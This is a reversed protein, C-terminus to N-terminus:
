WVGPVLRFRVRRAYDAYGPLERRLTADELATRVVFWITLLPGVALAPWSLLMLPAGLSGILFGSYGPHRVVRYPGREVVAHGVDHQIRVTSEFHPNAAMARAFLIGGVTNAVVGIAAFPLPITPWGLRVGLGAVLPPLVTLPGAVFAWAVDWGKTGEGVNRRRPLIAPNHRAIYPRQALVGVAITTMYIWIAPWRLTGAAFFPGALWVLGVVVSWAKLARNWRSFRAPANSPSAM